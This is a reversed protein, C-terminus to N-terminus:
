RTRSIIKSSAPSIFERRLDKMCARIQKLIEDIAEVSEIDKKRSAKARQKEYFEKWIFCRDFKETEDSEKIKRITNWIDERAKLYGRIYAIEPDTTNTTDIECEVCIIEELLETTINM